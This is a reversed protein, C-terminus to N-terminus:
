NRLLLFNLLAEKKGISSGFGISLLIIMTFLKLASRLCDRVRWDKKLLHLWDVVALNLTLTFVYAGCLSSISRCLLYLLLCASLLLKNLQASCSCRYLFISFSSM